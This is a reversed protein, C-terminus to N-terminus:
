VVPRGDPGILGKHQLHRREARSLQSPQVVRPAERRPLQMVHGTGCKTCRMCITAGQMAAMVARIDTIAQKEQCTEVTCVWILGLAAETKACNDPTLKVDAPPVLTAIGGAKLEDMATPQTAEGQPKEADM